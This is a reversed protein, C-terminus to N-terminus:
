AKGFFRSIKKHKLFIQSAKRTPTPPEVELMPPIPPLPIALEARTPLTPIPLPTPLATVPPGPAAPSAPTNGRQKVTSPSYSAHRAALFPPPTWQTEKRSDLEMVSQAAKGQSYFAKRRAAISQPKGIAGLGDAAASKLKAIARAEALTTAQAVFEKHPEDVLLSYTSPIILSHRAAPSSAVRPPPSYELEAETIRPVAKRPVKRVASPDLGKHRRLRQSEMDLQKAAARLRMLEDLSTPKSLADLSESVFLLRTPTSPSSSSATNVSDRGFSGARSSLSDESGRTVVQALQVPATRLKPLPVSMGLGHVQLDAFPPSLSPTLPMEDEGSSSSLSGSNSTRRSGFAPPAM